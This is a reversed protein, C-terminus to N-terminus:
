EENPTTNFETYSDLPISWTQQFEPSLLIRIVFDGSETKYIDTMIDEDGRDIADLFYLDSLARLENTFSYDNNMLKAKISMMISKTVGESVEHPAIRLTSKVWTPYYLEWDDVTFKGLIDTTVDTEGILREFREM